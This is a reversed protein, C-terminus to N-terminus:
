ESSRIFAVSRGDPSLAPQACNVGDCQSINRPPASGSAIHIDTWEVPRLLGERREIRSYLRTMGYTRDQNRITGLLRQQESSGPDVPLLQLSGDALSLSALPADVRTMLLLLEQPNLSDFGVIKLAGNAARLPRPPGGSLPIAVVVGTKLALITRGDPAFVPSLYGGGSTLQRRAGTEVTALWISGPEVEESRMQGPAATLGAIALLRRLLPNADAAGAAPALPVLALLIAALPGIIRPPRM